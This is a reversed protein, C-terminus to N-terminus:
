KKNKRKEYLYKYLKVRDSRLDMDIQYKNIIEQVDKNFIIKDKPINEKINYSVGNIEITDEDKDEKNM